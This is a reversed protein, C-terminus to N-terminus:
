IGRLKKSCNYHFVFYCVYGLPVAFSFERRVFAPPPQIDFRGELPVTEFNCMPEAICREQLMQQMVAIASDNSKMTKAM